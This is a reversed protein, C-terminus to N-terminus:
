FNTSKKSSIPADTNLILLAIDNDILSLSYEPHLVKSKARIVTYGSSTPDMANNTGLVVDSIMYRRALQCKLECM